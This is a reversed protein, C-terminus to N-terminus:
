STKHPNRLVLREKGDLTVEEGDRLTEFVEPADSIAVMKPNQKSITEWSVSSMQEVVYGSIKKLVPLYSEDLYRIVLIEANKGTLKANAEQASNAKVITGRTTNGFGCHGQAAIEAIIEVRVTNLMIPSEIPIGAALIIRDFPQVLKHEMAKNIASQIMTDADKFGNSMLPYVGWCLLLRQRIDEFPTVAVIPQKPRYRSILRPSNGHFTPAVIADASINAATQVAAKAISDSMDTQNDASLADKAGGYESTETQLAIRHMMSAAEIPYKGMATEGSLMVADSGDLMANAVDAVEARTPLPNRIMSDLMQTAVIVVKSAANCKKIIRKQILPIEEPPLQVGLDGRAVMVGSSVSIIEDINSLGEENEIKAIIHPITKSKPCHAELAHQIESIDSPKRVFSAAIFDLGEEMAMQLDQRDKESVAPLKTRVGVINVNKRAGIIGDSHIICRIINEKAWLVELEILGDAILVRNGPQVEQPMHQYSISLLESTGAVEETTLSIEKGSHLEIPTNDKVQGTRIEPGKTDGLLAVPIQTAASAERVMKIMRRHLAHDGHSFNFRAVNMGARILSQLLEPSDVTPGITCVMKTRRLTM